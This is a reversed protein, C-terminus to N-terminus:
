RVMTEKGQANETREIATSRKRTVLSKVPLWSAQAGQSEM